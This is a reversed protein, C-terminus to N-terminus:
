QGTQQTEPRGVLPKTHDATWGTSRAFMGLLAQVAFDLPVVDPDTLPEEEAAPVQRELETLDGVVRVGASRVSDALIRGAEVCSEAAWGPIRLKGESEAPERSALLRKVVGNHVLNRHELPSAHWKGIIQENLRHVLAAEAASMGRNAGAGVPPESRLLGDPLGLMSEFTDLLRTPHAKDLVIVTINEPGVAASWRELLGYGDRRHFAGSAEVSAPDKLVRRLYTDLSETNGRKLSEQWYSPVFTGFNRLVLTVHVPVRGRDGLADVTRRAGDLNTTCIMEFSILARRSEHRDLERELNTWWQEQPTPDPLYGVKLGALWSTAKHHNEGRGPYIVGEKRLRKKLRSAAYQLATSGTKPLGIHLLRAGAPVPEVTM